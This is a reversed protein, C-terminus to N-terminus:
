YNIIRILISCYLFLLSFFYILFAVNTTKTYLGLDDVSGGRRLTASLGFAPANPSTFNFSMPANVRFVVFYAIHDKKQMPFVQYM